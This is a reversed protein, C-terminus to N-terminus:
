SCSHLQSSLLHIEDYLKDTEKTILSFFSSHHFAKGNIKSVMAQNKKFLKKFIKFLYLMKINFLYLRSYTIKEQLIKPVSASSIPAFARHGFILVSPRPDLFVLVGNFILM